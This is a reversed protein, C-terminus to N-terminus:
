EAIPSGDFQRLTDTSNLGSLWVVDAGAERDYFATAWVEGRPAFGRTAVQVMPEPLHLSAAAVLVAFSAAVASGVWGWPIRAAEAPAPSFHSRLAQWAAPQRLAARAEGAASADKLEEIWSSFEDPQNDM